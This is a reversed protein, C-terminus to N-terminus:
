KSLENKPPTQNTGRQEAQDEQRSKRAKREKKENYDARGVEIAAIRADYEALVQEADLGAEAAAAPLCDRCHTCYTENLGFFGIRRSIIETPAGCSRCQGTAKM